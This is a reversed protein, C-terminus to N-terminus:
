LWEAVAPVSLPPVTMTDALPVYRSSLRPPGSDTLCNPALPSPVVSSEPAMLAAKAARAAGPPTM